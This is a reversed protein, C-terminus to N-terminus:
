NELYVSQHKLSIALPETAIMPSTLAMSWWTFTKFSSGSEMLSKHRVFGLKGM